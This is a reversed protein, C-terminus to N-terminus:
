KCINYKTISPLIQYEQNEPYALLLTLSNIGEIKLEYKGDSIALKGPFLKPEVEEM